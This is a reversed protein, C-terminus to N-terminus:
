EIQTGKRVLTLVDLVIYTFHQNYKAELDIGTRRGIHNNVNFTSITIIRSSKEIETIFKGLEIYSALMEIEYPIRIYGLETNIPDIPRMSVLKIGLGDLTNTLYRLFELSAGQAISDEPSEAINNSMLRSVGTLNKALIQASLLRQKNEEIEYDLRHLESPQKAIVESYYFWLGFLLLVFILTYIADKRM